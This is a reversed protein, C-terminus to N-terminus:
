EDPLCRYRYGGLDHAHLVPETGLAELLKAVTSWRPDGRGGEIDSLTAQRIGAHAALAAQTVAAGRRLVRILAGPALGGGARHAHFGAGLADVAAEAAKIATPTLTDYVSDKPRIRQAAFFAVMDYTPAYPQFDHRKPKM